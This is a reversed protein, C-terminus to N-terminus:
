ELADLERGILLRKVMYRQGVVVEALADTLTRVFASEREVEEALAAIDASTLGSAHVASDAPSPPTPDLM